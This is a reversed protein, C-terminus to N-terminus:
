LTGVGGPEVMDIAYHRGQFGIADLRRTKPGVLYGHLKRHRNRRAHLPRVEQHAAGVTRDILPAPRAVRAAARDRPERPAHVPEIRDRATPEPPLRNIVVALPADDKGACKSPGNSCGLKPGPGPTG